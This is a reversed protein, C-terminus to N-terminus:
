NKVLRDVKLFNWDLIFNYYIFVRLFLKKDEINSLIQLVNEGDFPVTKYTFCYLTVGLAWIDANKASYNDGKLPSNKGSEPCM